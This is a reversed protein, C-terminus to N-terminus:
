TRPQPALHSIRPGIRLKPMDCCSDENRVAWLIMDIKRPTWEDTGFLENLERAKRRMVAIVLMADDDTLSDSHPLMALLKSREPLSKVECLSKVVFQDATGFWKPFLNALLGSAGAPGLGRIAGAIELGKGIHAPDFTFLKRTVSHLYDLKGEDEYWRFLQTTQALRNAQTYKWPFYRNLLFEYWERAGLNSVCEIGAAQMLEELERNKPKIREWYRKLADQWLKHDRSEWLDNILPL